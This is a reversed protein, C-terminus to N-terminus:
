DEFIEKLVELSKIEMAKGTHLRFYDTIKLLLNYRTLHDTRLTDLQEYQISIIQSILRSEQPNTFHIHEPASNVFLGNKLDFYQRTESYNNEPFFGLYRSYQMLFALHFNAVGKTDIDLLEVSHWIFNFLPHDHEETHLTKYLLEALFLAVTRKVINGTIGHLPAYVKAEKLIQLERRTNHYTELELLFLPQLQSLKIGSRRNRIGKILYSQRGHNETYICAIVSNDTYNFHHLAIGRTKALM